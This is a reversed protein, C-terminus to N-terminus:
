GLFLTEGSPTASSEVAADSTSPSPNADSMSLEFFLTPDPDNNHIRWLSLAERRRDSGLISQLLVRELPTIPIDLKVIIHKGQPKNRSPTTIVEDVGFLEDVIGYNRDFEALDADSDIDVLLENNLPLRIVLGKAKAEARGTASSRGKSGDGSM